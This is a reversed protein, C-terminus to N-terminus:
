KLGIQYPYQKIDLIPVDMQFEMERTFEDMHIPFCKIKLTEDPIGSCDYKLQKLMSGITRKYNTSRLTFPDYVRRVM